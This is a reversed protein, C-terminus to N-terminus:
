ISFKDIHVNDRCFNSLSSTVMLVSLIVEFADIGCIYYNCQVEAVLGLDGREQADIKIKDLSRGLVCTIKWKSMRKQCVMVEYESCLLLYADPYKRSMDIETVDIETVYGADTYM